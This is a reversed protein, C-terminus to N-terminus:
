RAPASRSRCRAACSATPWGTGAAAPRRRASSPAAERGLHRVHRSRDRARRRRRDAVVVAGAIGMSKLFGLPFVTLTILALAVTVASFAVTRGATRMTTRVADPNKKTLEERFRTVLFLTYDIALGLGLGIVLNLAFISLSYAQNVATLGLFTGVVTTMGVALPLLTARGRFFLLSLLLLIPFALMEARGLDESVADGIQHQAFVSGGLLVGQNEFRQELGAVVDDEDATAKLTALLYAQRGDRSLTPQESVSAIGPQAQLEARVKAAQAPSDMLAVVGPAAQTGTAAEIRAEARASGSDTANFGGETQLSGAIPGGIVGAVVVFLLVFLLTRKPRATLM